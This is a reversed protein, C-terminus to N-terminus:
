AAVLGAQQRLDTMMWVNGVANLLRSENAAAERDLRDDLIIFVEFDRNEPKSRIDVLKKVASSVSANHTTIAIVAKGNFDYDLKYVHGSVGVYEPSPEVNESPGIRRLCDGVEEIFSALDVTTGEHEREWATISLLAAVYNAFAQPADDAKAWIELDGTDSLAAGLAQASGLFRTQRSDDVRIGRGRFHMLVGGDDFFRIQGATKEVFVPLPDGDAFTFATELMAVSGDESLPHCAIGITQFLSDCIM